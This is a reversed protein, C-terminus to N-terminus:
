EQQSILNFTESVFPICYFLFTPLTYHQVQTLLLLHSQITHGPVESRGTGTLLQFSPRHGQCELNLLLTPAILLCFMVSPRQWYVTSGLFLLLATAFNERHHLQSGCPLEAISPRIAQALTVDCSTIQAVRTCLATCVPFLSQRNHSCLPCQAWLKTYM